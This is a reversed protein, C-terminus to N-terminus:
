SGCCRSSSRPDSPTCGTAPARSSSRASTTPFLRRMEDEQESRVYRLGRGGGLAGTGRVAGAGDLRDAPGAASHTSTAVSRGRPQGALALTARAAAPEPAPVRARDPQARGHEAGRRRGGASWRALDLAQMAEVYGAFEVAAATTSRRSTSWACGTAGAGAHAPRDGDGGQRGDLPRGAHGPRGPRVPGRPSRRAPRGGRPLRLARVLALPRPAAPGGARDRHDDALAKAVATWNRGQGFLGHCFVIPSRRRRVDHHAPDGPM